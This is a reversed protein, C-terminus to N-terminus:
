IIMARLYRWAITKHSKINIRAKYLASSLHVDTDEVALPEWPSLSASLVDQAAGFGGGVVLPGALPLWGFAIAEVAALNHSHGGFATSSSLRYIRQSREKRM